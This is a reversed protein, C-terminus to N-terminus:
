IRREKSFRLIIYSSIGELDTGMDLPEKENAFHALYKNKLLRLSYVSDRICM